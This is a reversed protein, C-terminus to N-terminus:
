EIKIDRYISKVISMCLFRRLRKRIKQLQLELTMLHSDELAKM